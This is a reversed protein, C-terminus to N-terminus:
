PCIRGPDSSRLAGRRTPMPCVLHPCPMAPNLEIARRFERESGAWDYRPRHSGPSLPTHKPSHRGTSERGVAEGARDASPDITLPGRIRAYALALGAYAPAYGPDKAIAQEFYDKARKWGSPIKNFYARGLLYAEYAEPNVRRDTTLRAQVQPTLKVRIERAVDRAVKGQVAVVDRSDFEYTEAWLHRQRVAGVLNATIRVRDGRSVVAGELLADVKLEQALESSPKASQRSGIVSQYSLVRLSSIKGLETILAETMGDAFYDQGPDGSLNKLPLV